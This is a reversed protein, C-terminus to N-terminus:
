FEYINSLSIMRRRAATRWFNQPIFYLLIQTCRLPVQSGSNNATHLAGVMIKKEAATKTIEERASKIRWWRM